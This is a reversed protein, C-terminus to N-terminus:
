GPQGTGRPLIKLTPDWPQEGSIERDAFYLTYGIDRAQSLNAYSRVPLILSGDPQPTPQGIVDTNDSKEAFATFALEPWAGDHTEVYGSLVGETWVPVFRISTTEPGIADVENTPSIVFPAEDVGAGILVYVQAESANSAVSTDAPPMGPGRPLVKLTPDWAADSTLDADGYWLTYSIDGSASSEYGIRCPLSYTMDPEAIGPDFPDLTQASTVNTFGLGPWRGHAAHYAKLDPETWVPLWTASGHQPGLVDVESCPNVVFPAGAGRSAASCRVLVTLPYFAGEGSM